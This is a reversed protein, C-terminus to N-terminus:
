GSKQCRRVAYHYQTRTRAMINKVEGRTPRGSSEWISHQFAAKERFPEVTEKWGPMVETETEGKGEGGVMPINDHSCEILAGLIDLMQNDREQTHTEEKCKTNACYLCEHTEIAELKVELQAKFM